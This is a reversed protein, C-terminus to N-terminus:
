IVKRRVYLPALPEQQIIDVEKLKALELIALFYVIRYCVPMSQGCFEQFVFFQSFKVSDRLIDMFEAVVLVERVVCHPQVFSKLQLLRRWCDVLYSVDPVPLVAPTSFHLEVVVAHCDRGVITRESLYTSAGVIQEYALLRRVLENRPDEEVSAGEDHDAVKSPLLSRSKIDILLAAMLLYEAALYLSRQKIEDVYSLYQETILAMPIDLINIRSQNILHWLLDLPGSFNDLHVELAEPPIYLAEPVVLKEGYVWVEQDSGRANM